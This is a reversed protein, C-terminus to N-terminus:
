TPDGFTTIRKIAELLASADERGPVLPLQALIGLGESAEHFAEHSLSSVLALNIMPNVMVIQRALQLNSIEDVKEDIVMLDPPNGSIRAKADQVSDAWDIRCDSGASLAQALRNFREKHHTVIFFDYM